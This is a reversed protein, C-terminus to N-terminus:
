AEKVAQLDIQKVEGPLQLGLRGALERARDELQSDSMNEVRYTHLVEQKETFGSMKALDGMAKAWLDPKKKAWDAIAEADPASELWIALMELFPSRDYRRLQNILDDGTWSPKRASQATPTSM